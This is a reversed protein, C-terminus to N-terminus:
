FIFKLEQENKLHKKKTQLKHQNSVKIVAYKPCLLTKNSNKTNTNM